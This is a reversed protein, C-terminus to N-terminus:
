APYELAAIASIMAVRGAHYAGLLVIVSHSTDGVQAGTSQEAGVNLGTIDDFITGTNAFDYAVGDVLLRQVSGNLGAAFNHVANDSAPGITTGVFSGFANFTLGAVADTFITPYDRSGAVGWSVFTQLATIVASRCRSRCFLWPRTGNKALAPLGSGILCKSGTVACQVVNKGGFRSADAGFVPRTGAATAAPGSARMIGKWTSVAGSVLGTRRNPHFVDIALPGAARRYRDAMTVCRTRAPM